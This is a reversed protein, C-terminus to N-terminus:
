EKVGGITMGVVFHKQVFPYVILIPVTAIITISSRLAIPTVMATLSGSSASDDGWADDDWSTDDDWDSGGDDEPEQPTVTEQPKFYASLGGNKYTVSIASVQLIMSLIIVAVLLTKLIHKKGSNKMYM